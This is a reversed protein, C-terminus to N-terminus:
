YINKDNINHNKIHVNLSIGVTISTKELEEYKNKDYMIGQERTTEM